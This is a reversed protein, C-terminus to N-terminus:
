RMRAFIIRGTPTQLSSQVVIEVVRGIQSSANEVVVMTGDDLYGVGQGAEKGERVIKISIEEGSTLRPRMLTALTNLNLVRVNQVEAIRALNFDNTLLRAGLSAALRVLKADVAEIEPYDVDYMKVNLGQESRLRKLVELGRRGRQRKVESSSDALDHIEKMVFKPIVITGELFGGRALDFVRGDILISTDVVVVHERPQERSLFPLFLGLEEVGKVSIMVGLYSFVVYLCFRLLAEGVEEGPPFLLIFNAVLIATVLGVLLGFVAVVLKRVPLRGLALELAVVFLSGGFGFLTGTLRQTPMWYSGALTSVVIFFARIIHLGM